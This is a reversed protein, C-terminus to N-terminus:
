DDVPGVADILVLREIRAAALSAAAMGVIAGMSWGVISFRPGGLADAAALVDAAHAEWGYTGPPTTESLGRLDSSCVESSWDCDFRTHRRRSSFFFFFFLFM